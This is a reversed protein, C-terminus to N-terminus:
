QLQLLNAIGETSKLRQGQEKINIEKEKLRRDAIKLRRDFERDDESGAKLNKTAESIRKIELEQPIAMTEAAIKQARAQSEAAQGNFAATQSNQFQLQVQQAAQAAQQQEPSPQNAQKMLQILQERNSVNMNDIVSEVLVAYMPSDQPMTQLLQVLQTVEYERAIIGLSSTVTFKYDAVPYNEPDYQMYRWAAKQVFPILFSEQFNILTRKHRKIVAGLSMSAGASTRGGDVSGIVSSNDIAGTSTQVMKQLEAAQAFTIQSVEGFSFPHLVQRPDGNTLLMKGPRITPNAGRPLKTADVAMMPHVTLALADIRARLEADLAKQSNYGKECVGRGWFRGPVIDWQFAVFNRDQMMHPNKEAKVVQGNVLVVMAEVYYNNDEEERDVLPIMEEDEGTYEADEILFRPVLGCYKVLRVKDEPYVALEKDPEIDFDQIADNLPIDKYIGKEQMIEVHHKSVFEDSGVGLADEISNAVPDIFFNKPQIPRLKCKVKSGITVGVAQLEGGLVPQSAPKMEIGDELIVEAIGTGYVAANILVESIAKRTGNKAFDEHLYNRLRVIDTNDEDRIDDRMDFFKGRSFTAEEIEAVSSEVAQQTAPAIIRSRESERTADEKSWIGRFIRMYEDHKTEYNSEYHDRWSDVKEQVWSELTEGILDINDEM